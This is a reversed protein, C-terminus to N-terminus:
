LSLRLGDSTHVTKTLVDNKSMEKTMHQRAPRFIFKKVVKAHPISVLHNFVHPCPFAHPGISASTTALMTNQYAIGLPHKCNILPKM